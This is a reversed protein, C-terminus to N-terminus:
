EPAKTTGARALATLEARHDMTPRWGLEARARGPDFPDGGRWYAVGTRATGPRRGGGPRLADLLDLAAAGAVALHEPVRVTRVRRGLGEAVAAVIEAATIAGDGTVNFRRGFARRDLAAMVASAVSGAHVLPVPRDGRGVLPFWGRRVQQVLRPLFLRDGPGYVPCPRLIVAKLGGAEAEAVAAEALRKSRAYYNARPLPRPPLDEGVTGPGAATVDGYVAVSSIHVLPIGLARARAAAAATGAVNTREFAPWGDRSALIAAAHVIAAVGDVASWAHPDDVSGFVPRAGLWTVIEAGRASRVLATCPLGRRQLEQLVARGVLGTGGTLFIM